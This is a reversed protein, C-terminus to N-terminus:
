ERCSSSRQAAESQRLLDQVREGVETTGLGYDLPVHGAPSLARPLWPDATFTWILKALLRHDRYDYPAATSDRVAYEYTLGLKLHQRVPPAFVSASLRLVVDRRLATPAAADFYGTSRPYDDASTMVNARALWRRALRLDASLLLSVGRLDYADNKADYYRAALAGMIRLRPGIGFTTGMGGDIETRTRGIERFGRRGAGGFLSLAPLVELEWEGRHADFFWMPGESYRDGGALLLSEYRYALLASRGGGYLLLGPRGGLLLYSFDRGAEAQYGQGRVDGELSLRAWGRHPYVFRMGGVVQVALSRAGNGQSEPDVPSGARANTTGGLALDLRGSLPALYGPDLQTQLQAIALRDEAFAFSEARAQDLHTQAALPTGARQELLALLLARRAALPASKGCATQLLERAPDFAGQRLQVFAQWLTLNCDEPALAAAAGVTRLAWFNNDDDLYARALWLRLNKAQPQREIEAKLLPIAEAAKGASLLARAQEEVQAFAAAQPVLLCAVATLYRTKRM